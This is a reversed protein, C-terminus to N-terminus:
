LGVRTVVLGVVSGLGQVAVAQQSYELHGEQLAAALVVVSLLVSVLAQAMVLLLVELHV